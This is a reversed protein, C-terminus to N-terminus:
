PSHPDSQALPQRVASMSSMSSMGYLGAIVPGAMSSNVESKRVAGTNPRTANAGSRSM